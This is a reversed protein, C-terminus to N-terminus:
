RIEIYKFNFLYLIVCFQVFYGALTAYAAGIMGFSPVLMINFPLNILFNFLMGYFIYKTAGYSYFKVEMFQCTHSFVYALAIVPIIYFSKNYLQSLLLIGIQNYFIFLFICLPLSLVFFLLMYKYIIVNVKSSLVKDKRYKYVIPMLYQNFPAAVIAIKAGLGYGTAYYGVETKNLYYDIIYRDAYNVIWGFITYVLLPRVYKYLSKFMIIKDIKSVKGLNIDGLLKLKYLRFLVLLTLIFYLFIYNTWLLVSNAAFFVILVNLIVLNIFPNIAQIFAISKYKFSLNLYSNLFMFSSQSIGSLVILVVYLRHNFCFSYILSAILIFLYIKLLFTSYYHVVKDQNAVQLEKMYSQIIPNIVVSYFLLMGTLELNYVGLDNPLIYISILKGYLLTLLASLIHGSGLFSINKWDSLLNLKSIVKNKFGM